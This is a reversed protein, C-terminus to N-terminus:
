LRRDNRQKVLPQVLLHIGQEQSVLQSDPGQLEAFRPDSSVPALGSVLKQLKWNLTCQMPGKVLFFAQTEM